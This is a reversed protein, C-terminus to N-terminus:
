LEVPERLLENQFRSGIRYDSRIIINILDCVSSPHFSIIKGKPFKFGTNRIRVKGLVHSPFKQLEPFELPQQNANFFSLSPWGGHNGGPDGSSHSYNKEGQKNLLSRDGGRYEYERPDM